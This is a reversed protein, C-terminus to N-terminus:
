PRGGGAALWADSAPQGPSTDTSRVALLPRPGCPGPGGRASARGSRGPASRAALEITIPEPILVSPGSVAGTKPGCHTDAGILLQFANPRRSVSMLSPVA